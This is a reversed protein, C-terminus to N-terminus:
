QSSSPPGIIPSDIVMNMSRNVAPNKLEPKTSKVVQFVTAFFAFGGLWWLLGETSDVHQCDFDLAVEPAVGDDWVSDHHEV